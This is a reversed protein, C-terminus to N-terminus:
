QLRFRELGPQSLYKRMLQNSVVLAEERNNAPASLMFGDEGSWWKSSTDTNGGRPMMLLLTIESYDKNAFLTHYRYTRPHATGGPRDYDFYAYSMAGMGKDDFHITLRRQDEPVPIDEGVIGVEGRFIRKGKWTMRSKGKIFVTAQETGAKAGEEGLRYKIGTLRVEVNRPFTYYIASAALAIVILSSITIIWGKRSM